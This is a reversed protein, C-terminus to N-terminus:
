DFKLKIVPGSEGKLIEFRDFEYVKKINNETLTEEPSGSYEVAGNKMIIIDDSVESCINIDHSVMIVTKGEGALKKVSRMTDATHHIDLFAAAEDMVFVDAEQVIARCIYVAKKEGGSLASMKRHRKDLLGFSRMVSETKEKGSGGPNGLFSMYPRRGMLVLEEVSFDFIDSGTQPIYALMRGKERGTYDSSSRGNIIVEGNFGDIIGTIIKLLTTKGSGNPGILSTIAGARFKLCPIDLKFSEKKLYSFELNKVEIM